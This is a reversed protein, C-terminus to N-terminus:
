RRRIESGKMELTGSMSRVSAAQSEVELHSAKVQGRMSELMREVSQRKEVEMELKQEMEKLGSSVAARELAKSLHAKDHLAQELNMSCAKFREAPFNASADCYM